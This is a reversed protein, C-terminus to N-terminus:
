TLLSPKLVIKEPPIVTQCSLRLLADLLKQGHLFAFTQFPSKDGLSPRSYSNIHSMVRGIDEQSLKDFSTGKPLIMRIFEHNREVHPKQWSAM